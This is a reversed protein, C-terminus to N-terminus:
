AEPRLKWRLDRLIEFELTKFRKNNCCSYPIKYDFDFFYKFIIDFIARTICKDTHDCVSVNRVKELTQIEWKIFIEKFQNDKLHEIVNKIEEVMLENFNKEENDNTSLKSKKLYICLQQEFTNLTNMYLDKFFIEINNSNEKDM